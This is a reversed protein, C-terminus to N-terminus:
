REPAGTFSSATEKGCFAIKGIHRDAELGHEKFTIFYLVCAYCLFFCTDFRVVEPM